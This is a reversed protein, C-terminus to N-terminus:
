LDFHRKKREDFIRKGLEYAEINNNRWYTNDWPTLGRSYHRHEFVLKPAQIMGLIKGCEYLDNDAWLSQYEPCQIFGVRNYFARNMIAYQATEGIPTLGDSVAIYKLEKFNDIGDLLKMLEVDWFKPCGMDDAVGIILETTSSIQTAGRNMAQIANRSGGTDLVFKGFINAQCGHMYEMITSDNDDLSMIYEVDFPNKSKKMWERM